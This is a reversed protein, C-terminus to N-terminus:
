IKEKLIVEEVDYLDLIVQRDLYKESQFHGDLKLNDVSPLEHYEFNGSEDWIYEVIPEGFSVKRLINDLYTSYHKHVQMVDRADVM